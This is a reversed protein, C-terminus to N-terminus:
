YWVEDESRSFCGGIGVWDRCDAIGSRSAARDLVEGIM